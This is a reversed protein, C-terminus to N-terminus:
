ALHYKLKWYNRSKPSLSRSTTVTQRVEDTSYMTNLWSVASEDGLELIRSIVYARNKTADIAQLQADWFFKKLNQPLM